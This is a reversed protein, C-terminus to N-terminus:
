LWLTFKDWKDLRKELDKFLKYIMTEKDDEVCHDIYDEISSLLNHIDIWVLEDNFDIALGSTYAEEYDDFHDLLEHIEDQTLIEKKLYENRVNEFNGEIKRSIERRLIQM